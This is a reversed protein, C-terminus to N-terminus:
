SGATAVGASERAVQRSHLVDRYVALLRTACEDWTPAEVGKVPRPNRLEEAIAQALDATSASLPIARALGSEAIERLGSTDAVLAPTGLALAEIVALPHTEFESMLVTLASETLTRAMALRDEPPIAIIEVREALGLRAVLAELEPQYPGSGVVRLRADPLAALVSPMAEIVRHHGKYRELRGVSLVTARGSERLRATEEAPVAPLDSGNPIVVFRELPLGLSASFREAEFRAVAILRDARSLLPKLAAYQMGRLANRMASSHGGGHFTLVYPVHARLAGMMALPAVATHYSQVHVLDWEGNAIERPISPAVYYDANRPWAHVRRVPVGDVTESEALEGTTDTTLVTVDAHPLLLRAVRAVHNEVGGLYPIYRPTVMLVQLRPAQDAAEGSPTPTATM